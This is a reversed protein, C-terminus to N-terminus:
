NRLRRFGMRSFERHMHGRLAPYFGHGYRWIAGLPQIYALCMVVVGLIHHPEAFHGASPLFFAMVFGATAVM